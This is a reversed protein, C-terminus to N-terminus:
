GSISGPPLFRAGQRALDEVTRPMCVLDGYPNIGNHILFSLVYLGAPHGSALKSWDSRREEDRCQEVLAEGDLGHDALFAEVLRLRSRYEGDDHSTVARLNRQWRRLTRDTTKEETM